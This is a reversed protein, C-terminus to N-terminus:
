ARLRVTLPMKTLSNESDTIHYVMYSMFNVDTISVVFKNSRTVPPNARAINIPPKNINNLPIDANPSLSLYRDCKLPALMPALLNGRQHSNPKAM